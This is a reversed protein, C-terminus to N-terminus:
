KSTCLVSCSLNTTGDGATVEPRIQLVNELIQEVGEATKSIATSTPDTIDQYNASTSNRGRMKITGGTGFTGWVHVSKDAKAPLSVPDGTDGNLLGTWTVQMVSRSLWTVTAARSAM